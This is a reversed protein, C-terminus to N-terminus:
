HLANEVLDVLEPITKINGSNTYEIRQTTENWVMVGFRHHLKQGDVYREIETLSKDGDLIISFKSSVAKNINMLIGFESKSVLCYGILQSLEKLGMNPVKKIEFIILEFKGNESNELLIAIDLHLEHVELAFKRLAEGAQYGNELLRKLGSRVEGVLPEVVISKNSLNAEFQKILSRSIEEYYDTEKKNNM